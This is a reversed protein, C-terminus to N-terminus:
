KNDVNFLTNDIIESSNQEKEIKKPVFNTITYDRLDIVMNENNTRDANDLISHFMESREDEYGKFIVDVIQHHNFLLTENPNTTGIPYVCGLYDFMKQRSANMSRYGSIMVYNDFGDLEVISGLPLYKKPIDSNM